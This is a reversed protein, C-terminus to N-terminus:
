ADVAVPPLAGPVLRHLAVGIAGALASFHTALEGASASTVVGTAGIVPKTLDIATIGDVSPGGSATATVAGQEVVARRCASRDRADAHALRPPEGNRAGSLMATPAAWSNMFAGLDVFPLDLVSEVDVADTARGLESDTAVALQISERFVETCRVGATPEDTLAWIVVDPADEDHHAVAELATLREDIAVDLRVNPYAARFAAFVVSTLAGLGQRLAVQLSGSRVSADDHACGVLEDAQVILQRAEGAIYEGLHTLEVGRSTRSFVPGGVSRELQQIQRTIAPQATFLRRAAGSISGEDIVALFSRLHRLEM